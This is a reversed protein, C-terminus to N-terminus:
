FNIDKTVGDVTVQFNRDCTGDGYDVTIERENHITYRKVGSVAIGCHRKYVLSELM